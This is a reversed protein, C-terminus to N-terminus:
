KMTIIIHQVNEELRPPSMMQHGGTKSAQNGQRIRHIRSRTRKTSSASEAASSADREIGKSSPSGEDLYLYDEATPLCWCQAVKVVSSSVFEHSKQFSDMMERRAMEPNNRRRQLFAPAWPPAVHKLAGVFDDMMANSDTAELVRNATADHSAQEYESLWTHWAKPSRMPKLAARYRARSRDQELVRARELSRDIRLAQEVEPNRDLKIHDDIGVELKLNALWQQRPQKALCCTHQLYPVVTSYILQTVHRINDSTHLTKLAKKFAARGQASLESPRTAEEIGRAPPYESLKPPEPLTPKVPFSLPNDPKFYIWVNQAVARAHIQDFWTTWDDQDRLGIIGDHRFEGVTSSTKTQEPGTLRM